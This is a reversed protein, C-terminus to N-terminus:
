RLSLQRPYEQHFHVHFIRGLPQFMYVLLLTQSPESTDSTAKIPALGGAAACCFFGLM